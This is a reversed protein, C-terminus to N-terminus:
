TTQRRRVLGAVIVALLTGAALPTPTPADATTVAHTAGAEIESFPNTWFDNSTDTGNLMNNVGDILLAGPPAMHGWPVDMSSLMLNDQAVIPGNLAGFHIDFFVDLTSSFTGGNPGNFNITIAGVSPPGTMDTSQLTVFYFGLPGGGLAIPAASELQLADMVLPVTAPGPPSADAMRQIITDADGVNQVGTSGGFNFTGLPVGVFPAGMFTTGPTTQFLDYGADVGTAPAAHATCCLSFVCGFISLISLRRSLRIDCSMFM